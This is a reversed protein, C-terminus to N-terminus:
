SFRNLTDHWTTLAQALQTSGAAATTLAAMALRARTLARPRGPDDAAEAVDAVHDLLRARQDEAFSRDQQVAATLERLASATERRGDRDLADITVAIDRVAGAVAFQSNVVESNIAGVNGHVTVPAPQPGQGSAEIHDPMQKDVKELYELGLTLHAGAVAVPHPVAQRRCYRLGDTLQRLGQGIRPNTLGHDLVATTAGAWARIAPVIAPATPQGDAATRRLAHGAALQEAIEERLARGVIGDRLRGHRPPDLAEPVDLVPQEVTLGSYLEALWQARHLAGTLARDFDERTLRGHSVRTLRERDAASPAFLPAGPASGRFAYRYGIADAGPPVHGEVGWRCAIRLANVAEPKPRGLFGTANRRLPRLADVVERAEQARGAMLGYLRRRVLEDEQRLFRRAADGAGAEM